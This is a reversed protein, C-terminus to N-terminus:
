LCALSVVTIDDNALSRDHRRADVWSRFEPRATMAVQALDAVPAGARLSSLLWRAFADSALLFLDGSRWEGFRAEMRAPRGARGPDPEPARSALLHPANAFLAPDDIPFADMLRDDRFHFVCSDGVAVATWKGSGSVVRRSTLQLGVFTAHAGRALGPEEYWQVPRGSLVRGDLYTVLQEAWEARAADLLQSTPRRPVSVWTHVLLRAWAGSLLSETAGDAVALRIRRGSLKGEGPAFADEYDAERSGARPAWLTTVAAEM